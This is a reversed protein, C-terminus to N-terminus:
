IGIEIELKALFMNAHMMLKDGSNILDISQQAIQPNLEGNMIALRLKEAALRRARAWNVFNDKIMEMQKSHESSIKDPIVAQAFIMEDAILRKDLEQLQQFATNRDIYGNSFNTITNQYLQEWDNDVAVIGRQIKADWEKFAIQENVIQQEALRKEEAVRRAQTAAKQEPTETVEFLIFCAIVGAVSIGLRKLYPSKDTSTIIKVLYFLAIVFTILLGISFADNM